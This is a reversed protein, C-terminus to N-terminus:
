GFLQTKSDNWYSDVMAANQAEELQSHAVNEAAV